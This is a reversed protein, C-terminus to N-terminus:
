SRGSTETEAVSNPARVRAGIPRQVLVIGSAVAVLGLVDHWAIREHLLLASLALGFAPTLFYYASVRSAEGRALLWFWLLTTGISLVVVLYALAGLLAGSPHVHPVGEVLYAVPVLVASAALLQLASLAILDIGTAYRKFLVTSAVSACVGAFAFLVDGPTATGTGARAAVIALVGGFGLALGAAKRADLREGLARPAVVALVLPNLSAVIAGMGSALHRLAIYTFGLYLANALVGLLAAVEYAHRPRPFPRRLSLAIAALGVGAIGFRVVLFWLPPSQTAAIKSPVYASAWLFVFFIAVLTGRPVVRAVTRAM